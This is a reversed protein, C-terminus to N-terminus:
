LPRMFSDVFRRVLRRLLVGLGVSEDDASGAGTSESGHRNPLEALGQAHRALEEAILDVSAEYCLRLEVDLMLYGKRVPTPAIGNHKRVIGNLENLAVNHFSRERQEWAPDRFAAIEERPIFSLMAQPRTTSLSRTATRVWSAQLSNRFSVIATNLENQLEVWPPAANHRQLIRHMLFEERAIFPNSEAVDKELPKGQFAQRAADFQGQNRAREIREEVLSHWGKLSVPNPRSAETPKRLRYDLTAERADTLRSADQVRRRQQRSTPEADLPSLRRRGASKPPAFNGTRVQATLSPPKFTVLWPKHGDGGGPYIDAQQNVPPPPTSPIVIQPPSEKLKDDATRIPGERLPRYKDVLLRLVSDQIREEGTWNENKDLDLLLDAKSASARRTELEREEEEASAWLAASARQPVSTRDPTSSPPCRSFSRVASVTLTVHRTQRLLM